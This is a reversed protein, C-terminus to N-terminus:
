RTVQISAACEGAKFKRECVIDSKKSNINYNTIRDNNTDTIYFYGNYYGLDHAFDFNSALQGKGGFQQLFIGEKKDFVQVFYNDKDCVYINGEVISISSPYRVLGSGRGYKAIEKSINLKQLDILYIKHNKIDSIFIKGAELWGSSVNINEKKFKVIEFKTFTDKCLSVLTHTSDQSSSLIFIKKPDLSKIISFKMNKYDNSHMFVLEKNKFSCVSYKNFEDYVVVLLEDNLLQIQNIEINTNIQKNFLIEDNIIRGLLLNKSHVFSVVLKGNESISIAHPRKFDEYKIM